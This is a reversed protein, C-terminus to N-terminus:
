KGRGRGSDEAKAVVQFTLVKGAVEGLKAQSLDVKATTLTKGDATASVTEPTLSVNKGNEDTVVITYSAAKGPVTFSASEEALTMRSVAFKTGDDVAYGSEM